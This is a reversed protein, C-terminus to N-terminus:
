ATEHAECSVTTHVAGAAPATQSPKRQRGSNKQAAFNQLTLHVCSRKDRFKKKSSNKKPRINKARNKVNLIKKAAEDHSPPSEMM